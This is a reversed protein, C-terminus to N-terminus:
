FTKKKILGLGIIIAIALFLLSFIQGSKLFSFVLEEERWFDIVFRGIAYFALGFAFILGKPYIYKEKLFWFFLGALFLIFTWGSEFLQVPVRGYFGSFASSVVGLSDGNLFCGIRGLSWGILWGIFGIDLWLGTKQQNHKLLFWATLFGAGIGFFSILGGQWVKFIDLWSEFQERYVLFYGIRSAAFGVIFSVIVLDALLEKRLGDKKVLFYTVLSGLFLGLLIMAGHTYFSIKGIQLLIPYM